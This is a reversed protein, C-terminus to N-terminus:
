DNDTPLSAILGAISIARSRSTTSADWRSPRLSSVMGHGIECYHYWTGSLNILMYANKEDYCVRQIFSSRAIDACLFPALNVQGRYKVDVTEHQSEQSLQQLKPTTKPVDSSKNSIESSNHKAPHSQSVVRGVESILTVSAKEGHEDKNIMEGGCVLVDETSLWLQMDVTDGSDVRYVRGSLM